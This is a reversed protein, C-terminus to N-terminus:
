SLVGINKLSATFSQILVAPEAREPVMWETEFEGALEDFYALKAALGQVTTAPAAVLAMFIDDEDCCQKRSVWSWDGIGHKEELRAQSDLAAMHAAHAKRHTDILDFTPDIALAAGAAPAVTLGSAAAGIGAIVTIINRRTVSTNTPPTSHVSDAQIM